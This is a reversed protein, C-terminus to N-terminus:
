LGVEPAIDHSLAGPVPAITQPLLGALRAAEQGARRVRARHAAQRLSGVDADDGLISASTVGWRDRSAAVMALRDWWVGAVAPNTPPPGFPRAWPAGSWVAQEALDRARGEMAQERQRIAKALDEDDIDTARPVLGAVLDQRPAWRGGTAQESCRLRARLVAAPDQDSSIPLTALQSLADKADLSREEADRLAGLLGAWAPSQRARALLGDSFGAQGLVTEFRRAMAAAVLSQHEKVLQEFSEARAWESAMTEHASIDAGRRSAVAVLVERASLRGAPAEAMDANAPEPEVDVYLRNSERGRTAAVYLAERTMGVGVIAHATGVTRGQASWVSSAYGLEVHKSVYAAPLVAEGGRDLAQVTMSGDEHTASVTFRDRNRVWEGDSLRLRRDNHRAVVVDGVGAVSGDALALGEEAVKGAAVRDARALRNLERVTENDHAVMLSSRGAEVDAKWAEYCAALVEARDGESVRGHSIYADVGRPSGARLQASAAREWEEAFRRVDVLEPPSGRDGVLMGFAGGADVAGLQAPDGVLLVKAGADRAQAVLRDLAFTGALSAEGALLLDGPALQWRRAEAELEAARQDVARSAAPPLQAALERLRSVEALREPERDVESLWKATNETPIGLEESLNAAASASPALGRVSGLGHEAEWATLLGSLAVTKGTGAPGVLVDCVRGSTAVQEVAVAQDQGVKFARGPLPRDCVRAVTGYSVAPGSTGRSGELLRTEAELLEATTYQWSTAPAFQSTGDPARFREPVHSLEPPTLKVAMSLALGAARESVKAREGPVFRVGHLQREVDAYVNALTFVSSRDARAALAARALDRLMADTLDDSRLAPLDSRGALSAVWSTPEEGVWPKAREVWDATMESLPRHAKKPRTERWASRHLAGLENSTLPRGRDAEQESVKQAIVEEIAMTRRSFEAVLDPPVGDIERKAVRGAIAPVERWAVGFRETMLDEVVGTRRESLAVVWPHFAKSDLTRWAGDSRAQARNLVVCHHHLQCDGLRSEYHLWSSAVVGRVPEQRAGQAGTRTRFVHGEAWTVVESAAKALVEEVAARTAQDGMAWMLSVSKPPSFTMDFGAVPSRKGVSLRGLPKGTVPDALQALMRHLMVPSVVDGEKVSGQSPGLGDLGRGLFRGPPTGASAYYRAADAGQGVEGAVADVLYQWANGGMKLPRGMTLVPETWRASNGGRTGPSRGTPASTAIDKDAWTM